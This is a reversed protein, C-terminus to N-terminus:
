EIEKRRAGVRIPRVICMSFQVCGIRSFWIGGVKRAKYILHIAVCSLVNFAMLAGAVNDINIM